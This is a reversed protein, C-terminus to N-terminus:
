KKPKPVLVEYDKQQEEPLANYEEATIICDLPLSGMDDRYASDEGLYIECNKSIYTLGMPNEGIGKGEGAEPTETKVLFRFGFVSFQIIASPTPNSGV